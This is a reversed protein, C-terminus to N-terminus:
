LKVGNIYLKHKPRLPKEITKPLLLAPLKLSFFLILSPNDSISATLIYRAITKVNVNGKRNMSAPNKRRRSASPKMKGAPEAISILKSRSRAPLADANKPNTGNKKPPTTEGRTPIPLIKWELAIAITIQEAIDKTVNM